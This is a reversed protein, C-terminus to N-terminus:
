GAFPNTGTYLNPRGTYTSILPNREREERTGQQVGATIGNRRAIEVLNEAKRKCVFYEILLGGILVIAFGLVQLVETTTNIDGAPTSTVTVAVSTGNQHGTETVTTTVNQLVTTAISTTVTSILTKTKTITITPITFTSM